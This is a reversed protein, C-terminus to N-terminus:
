LGVAWSKFALLCGKIKLFIYIILKGIKICLYNMVNPVICEKFGFLSPSLIPENDLDVNETMVRRRESTM